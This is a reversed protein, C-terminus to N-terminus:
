KKYNIENKKETQRVPQYIEPTGFLTLPKQPYQWNSQVQCEIKQKKKKRVLLVPHLDNSQASTHRSSKNTHAYSSIIPGTIIITLKSPAAATIGYIYKYMIYVWQRLWVGVDGDGDGDDNNSPRDTPQTM